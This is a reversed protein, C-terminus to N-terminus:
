AAVWQRATKRKLQPIIYDETLHPASIHHSAHLLLSAVTAVVQLFYYNAAACPLLYHLLLTHAHWISQLRWPSQRACLQQCCSSGMVRCLTSLCLGKQALM